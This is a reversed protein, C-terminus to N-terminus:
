ASPPAAYHGSLDDSPPAPAVSARRPPVRAAPPGARLSAEVERGLRDRFLGIDWHNSVARAQRIGSQYAAQAKAKDGVKLWIMSLVYWDEPQPGLTDPIEWANHPEGTRLAYLWHSHIEGTLRGRDAHSHEALLALQRENPVTVLWARFAWRYDHRSERSIRDSIEKCALEYTEIQDAALSAMALWYWHMVDHPALATVRAFSDVASVWDRRDAARHGQLMAPWYLACDKAQRLAAARVSETITQDGKISHAIEGHKGGHQALHRVLAAAERVAASEATQDSARWVRVTDDYGGSVLYQGDPSFVVDRAWHTHGTLSQVELGTAVDWLKVTKDTSSSALRTGDPSFALGGPTGGHGALTRLHQGTAADWLRITHDNSSTAILSSDMNFVAAVVPAVHGRLEYLLSRSKVDWVRAIDDGGAALLRQGNHSFSISGSPVSPSSWKALVDGSQWKVINISGDVGQVAIHNGDPAWAVGCPLSGSLTLDLTQQYAETEWIRLYGEMPTEGSVAALHRGGPRFALDQTGISARLVRLPHLTAADWVVIDDGELSASAFVNRLPSVAVTRVKGSHGDLRHHGSMQTADWLRVTGDESASVLRWGDPCFDISTGLATHGSLEVLNQPQDIDWIKLPANRIAVALRRGDPSFNVCYASESWPGFTAVEQWSEANWLKVTRDYGATALRYGDPSWAFDLIEDSHARVKTVPRWRGDDDPECIRICGDGSGIALRPTGPAFALGLAPGIDLSQRLSFTTADWINVRAEESGGTAILQGDASFSTTTRPANSAGYGAGQGEGSRPHSNKLTAIQKGTATDWVIGIRDDGVTVLTQGDPAFDLASVTATHGPLTHLVNGTATEWIWVVKDAGAAAVTRGDPSFSAAYVGGQPGEFRRLEGHSQHWLHRWEWGVGGEGGRAPRHRELLRLASAVAGSRLHQQALNMDAAYLNALAQQERERAQRAYHLSFGTGAILALAIGILLTGVVPNRVFWRRGREFRSVPRAALPEGRLFRRLDDALAAATAYRAEPSKELCKACITELDRPLGRRVQRLRAADVTCIRHLTDSVSISHFPPQGILMAYLMAGLAYVDASPGVTGRHGDVQEPAMYNPTGLLDGTMTIGPNGDELRRALGFDAVYPNDHEDLLVNAPKLDRHIIGAQHAAAVAESVKLLLEAAFRAGLPGAAIREALSRGAILPMTYYMRGEHQGVRYVPMIGPHRLSAATGSENRFRRVALASAFWGHPLMKLAVFRGTAPEKARYVVGMGGRGLEELLEYEGFALPLQAGGGPWESMVDHTLQEIADADAFYARLQDAHQLHEALFNDRSVNEGRDLRTFYEALISALGDSDHESTPDHV